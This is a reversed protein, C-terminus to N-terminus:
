SSFSPEYKSSTIKLEDSFSCIKEINDKSKAYGENCIGQQNRKIQSEM